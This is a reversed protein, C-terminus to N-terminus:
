LRCAIYMVNFLAINYLNIKDSCVNNMAYIYM